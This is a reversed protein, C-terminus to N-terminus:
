ATFIHNITAYYMTIAANLAVIVRMIRQMKKKAIRNNLNQSKYSM